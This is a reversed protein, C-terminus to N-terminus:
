PAGGIRACALAVLGPMAMLVLTLAPRPRYMLRRAGAAARGAARLRDEGLGLLRAGDARGLRRRQLAARVGALEQAGSGPREDLM